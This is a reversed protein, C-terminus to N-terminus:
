YKDWLKKVEYGVIRINRVNNGGIEQIIRYLKTREAIIRDGSWGYKEFIHNVVKEPLNDTM